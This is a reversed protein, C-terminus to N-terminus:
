RRLRGATSAEVPSFRHNSPRGEDLCFYPHHAAHEQPSAAPRLLIADTGSQAIFSAYRGAPFLGARSIAEVQKTLLGM